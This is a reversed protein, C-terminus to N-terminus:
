YHSTEKCAVGAHCLLEYSITEAHQAVIDVSINEGWLEALDGVQIAGKEFANIDIVIMDMSVRGLLQATEGKIWVPTGSKAHRPYGDAYGCAVVAVRMDTPCQWSAGYGISDGQKLDHIAIIPAQLTMGAKLDHDDRHSEAFPSSGYLMIGPRIWDVHSEQWGLIGASNAISKTIPTPPAISKEAKNFCTLQKKTADNGLEDACSFHTMLILSDSNVQSHNALKQYLEATREPQFGLRHMGTDIKLNIDFAHKHSYQDLLGLQRDDHVTLRFNYQAAIRLDDVSQHGQLITIPKTIGAERLEVAEPICSVAFGDAIEYLIGATAVAGHGYADAKIVALTKANPALQKARKLNHQLAEPHLTIRSSRKM